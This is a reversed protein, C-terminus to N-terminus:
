WIQPFLSKDMIENPTGLWGWGPAPKDSNDDNFDAVAGLETRNDFVGLIQQDNYQRFGEGLDYNNDLSCNFVILCKEGTDDDVCKDSVETVITYHSRMYSVILNKVDLKGDDTMNYQCNIDTPQWHGETDSGAWYWSRKEGLDINFFRNIEAIRQDTKNSDNNDVTTTNNDVATTTNDDMTTTPECGVMMASVMAIILSAFAKTM